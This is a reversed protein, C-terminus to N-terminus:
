AADPLQCLIKLAVDIMEVMTGDAPEEHNRATRSAMISDDNARVRPTAAHAAIHIIHTVNRTCLIVM